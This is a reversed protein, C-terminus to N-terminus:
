FYFLSHKPCVTETERILLKIVDWIRTVNFVMIIHANTEM